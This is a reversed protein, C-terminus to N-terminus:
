SFLSISGTSSNSIPWYTSRTHALTV